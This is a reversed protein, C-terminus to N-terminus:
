APRKGIRRRCVILCAISAFLLCCTSPEPVAHLVLTSVSYAPMSYNFHALDAISVTGVYVPTSSLRTLQYIDASGSTSFDSINLSAAIAHDTKNLAVLVM